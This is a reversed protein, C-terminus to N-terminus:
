WRRPKDKWPALDFLTLRTADVQPVLDPLDKALDIECNGENGMLDGAKTGPGCLILLNFARKGEAIAVDDVFSALAPVQTQSLGRMMHNAGFKFFVKPGGAARYLALFTRKMLTERELNAAYVSLGTNVGVFPQYIRASLIMDDMLQALTRDAEGGLLDR